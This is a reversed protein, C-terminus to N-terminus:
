LKIAIAVIRFRKSRDFARDLEADSKEIGGVNVSRVRVFLEEAARDAALAVADNDRRFEADQTIRACCAEASDVAFRLVHFLRALRTQAPEIYIADVEIILV